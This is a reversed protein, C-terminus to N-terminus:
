LKLKEGNFTIGRKLVEDITRRASDILYNELSHYNEFNPFVVFFNKEAPDDYEFKKKNFGYPAQELTPVALRLFFEKTKDSPVSIGRKGFYINRARKYVIIINLKWGNLKVADIQEFAEFLSKKIENSVFPFDCNASLEDEISIITGFKINEENM